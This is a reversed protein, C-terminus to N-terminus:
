NGSSASALVAKPTRIAQVFEKWSIFVCHSIITTSGGEKVRGVPLQRAFFGLMGEGILPSIGRLIEIHDGRAIIYVSELISEEKTAENEEVISLTFHVPHDGKCRKEAVKRVRQTELLLSVLSVDTPSSEGSLSVYFRDRNDDVQKRSCLPCAALYRLEIYLPM